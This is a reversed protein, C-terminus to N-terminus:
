RAQALLGVRSADGSGSASAIADFAPKGGDEGLAIARRAVRAGAANSLFRAHSDLFGFPPSLRGALVLDTIPSAALFANVARAHLEALLATVERAPAGEFLEPLRMIPVRRDNRQVRRAGPWALLRPPPSCGIFTAKGTWWKVETRVCDFHVLEGLWAHRLMAGRVTAPPEVELLAQATAGLLKQPANPRFLGAMDPHFSAVVDHFLAALEVVAGDLRPGIASADTPAIRRLRRLVAEEAPDLAGAGLLGRVEGLAADAADGALAHTETDGAAQAALKARKKGFPKGIELKGGTVGPVLVRRLVEAHIQAPTDMTPDRDYVTLDRRLLPITRARRDRRPRGHRGVSVVGIGEAGSEVSAGMAFARM